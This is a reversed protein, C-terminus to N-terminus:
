SFHGKKLNKIEWIIKSCNVSWMNIIRKNNSNNNSNNEDNKKERKISKNKKCCLTQGTSVDIFILMIREAFNSHQVQM